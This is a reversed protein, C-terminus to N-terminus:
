LVELKPIPVIFKCGWERTFSLQEMIEEKINWPLILIYEPKTELISDPSNIPIKTGPLFKNQKFPSKDVTYDIFDTKIGSYCLLTNGKAPAGYAIIKKNNEKLAILLKLLDRKIKEVKQKFDYYTKIELLGKEKEETLILAVKNSKEKSTDEKHKCYIRLSGGHTTLTDVDFIELGHQEFLKCASYLSFYSFHEHYVTDFQNLEMLSLLHPFEMTITGNPKLAEKFASVFDNVNPNHALVNNALLLDAKKNNKTLKKAYELNFFTVDTPIGKDIAVQATNGTPEVGLVPINKDLFYQLLYGDNSAVEIVFSNKNLSLKDTIMDVYNSCHELWSKSYSSYYSYESSFINEAKEFEAVQVLFCNACVYLSLPYTAEMKNIQNLELYSNSLPFNGLDLFNETLNNNCLRCKEM